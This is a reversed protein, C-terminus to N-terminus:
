VNKVTNACNIGSLNVSYFIDKTNHIYQFLLQNSNVQNQKYLEAFFVFQKCLKYQSWICFQTYYLLKLYLGCYLQAQNTEQLAQEFYPDVYDLNEVVFNKRITTM